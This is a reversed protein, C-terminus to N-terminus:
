SMHTLWLELFEEEMGRPPRVLNGDLPGQYQRPIIVPCDLVLELHNSVCLRELLEGRYLRHVLRARGSTCGADDSHWRDDCHRSQSGGSAVAAM